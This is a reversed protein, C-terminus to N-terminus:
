FITVGIKVLFNLLNSLNIAGVIKGAFRLAAHLFQYIRVTKQAETETQANEIIVKVYDSNFDGSATLTTLLTKIKDYNTETENESM